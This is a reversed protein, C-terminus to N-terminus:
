DKGKARAFGSYGRVEAPQLDSRIRPDKEKVRVFPFTFAAQFDLLRIM